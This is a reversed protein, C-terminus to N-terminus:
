GEEEWSPDFYEDLVNKTSRLREQVEERLATLRELERESDRTRQQATTTAESVLQEADKRAREVVSSAEDNARQRIEGAEEEALRLIKEVRDGFGVDPDPVRRGLEGRAEALEGELAATRERASALAQEATTLESGLFRLREDVQERAYGRLVTDFYENGPEDM